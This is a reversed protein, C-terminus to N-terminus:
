EIVEDARLLISHPIAIGLARATKLNVVLEFKTPQEIPLDGPRAGKLIKDVFTAARYFNERVPPGYALLGGAEVFERAEYVAPLQHRAALAVIRVLRHPDVPKAVHADFGARLSQAQDERRARATLAIAAIGPLTLTAELLAMGSLLYVINLVLAMDAVLGAFGSVTRLPEALDHERDAIPEADGTPKVLFDAESAYTALFGRNQNDGPLLNFALDTIAEQYTKFNVM